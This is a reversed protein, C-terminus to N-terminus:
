FCCRQYHLEWCPVIAPFALMRKVSFHCELAQQAAKRLICYLVNELVNQVAVSGMRCCLVSPEPYNPFLCHRRTAVAPHSDSDRDSSFDAVNRRLSHCFGSRLMRVGCKHDRIARFVDNRHVNWTEMGDTFEGSMLFSGGQFVLGQIAQQVLADSHVKEKATHSCCVYTLM